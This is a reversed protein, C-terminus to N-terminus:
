STPWYIVRDTGSHIHQAEWPGHNGRGDIHTSRTWIKFGVVEEASALAHGAIFALNASNGGEFFYTTFAFEDEYLVEKAVVLKIDPNM